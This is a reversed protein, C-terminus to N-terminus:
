WATKLNRYLLGDRRVVGPPLEESEDVDQCVLVSDLEKDAPIEAGAGVISRRLSCGPGIWAEPMVISDEIRCGEALFSAFGLAARGRIEVGGHLDAGPGLALVADGIRVVPDSELVAPRRHDPLDLLRLSGELYDEPSGFEWWFGTHVFSALQREASLARYVDRIIDSAGESIASM